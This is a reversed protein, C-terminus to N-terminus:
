KWLSGDLVVNIEYGTGNEWVFRSVSHVGFFGHFDLPLNILKHDFPQSSLAQARTRNRGEKYWLFIPTHAHTIITPAISLIVM